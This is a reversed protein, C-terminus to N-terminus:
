GSSRWRPAATARTQETLRERDRIMEEVTLGGVISRLHGAFINHVRAGMQAQQDLFRRAANAISVM